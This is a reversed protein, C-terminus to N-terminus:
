SWGKLYNGTTNAHSRSLSLLFFFFSPCFPFSQVACVCVCLCVCVCRGCVCRGFNFIIFRCHFLFLTKSQGEGRKEIPKEGTKVPCQARGFRRLFLLLLPLLLFCFFTARDRIFVSRVDRFVAASQAPAPVLEFATVSRVHVCV